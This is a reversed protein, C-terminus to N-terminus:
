KSYMSLKGENVSLHCVSRKPDSSKKKKKSRNGIYIPRSLKSKGVTANIGLFFNFRKLINMFSIMKENFFKRKKIVGLNNAFM